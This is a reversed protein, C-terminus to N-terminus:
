PTAKARRLNAWEAAGARFASFGIEPELTDGHM